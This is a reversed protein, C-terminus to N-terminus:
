RGRIGGSDCGERRPRRPLAGAPHHRSKLEPLSKQPEPLGGPLNPGTSAPRPRAGRRRAFGSRIVAKVAEEASAHETCRDRFGATHWYAAWTDGAREVAGAHQGGVLVRLVGAMRREAPLEGWCTVAVPAPTM